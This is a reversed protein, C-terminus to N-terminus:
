RETNREKDIDGFTGELRKKFKAYSAFIEKTDNDQKKV